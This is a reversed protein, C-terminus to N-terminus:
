DDADENEVGAIYVAAVDGFVLQEGSELNYRFITLLLFM